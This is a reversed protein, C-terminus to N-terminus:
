HDPKQINRDNAGSDKGPIRGARGSGAPMTQLLAEHFAERSEYAAPSVIFAPIGHRRAREVAYAGANNCIVATVQANTIAGDRIADLIAQLNTGGGSAMVAVRLM